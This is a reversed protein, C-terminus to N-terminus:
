DTVVASHKLIVEVVPQLEVGCDAAGLDGGDGCAVVTLDM